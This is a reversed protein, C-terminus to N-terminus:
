ESGGRSALEVGAIALFAILLAFDSGRSRWDLNDADYDAAKIWRRLQASTARALVERRELETLALLDAYTPQLTM